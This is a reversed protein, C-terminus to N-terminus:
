ARTIVFTVIGQAFIAVVIGIIAYLIMNRAGAIAQPDGGTFMFRFGAIVLTIVSVGGLIYVITQLVNDFIGGDALLNGGRRGEADEQCAAADLNNGNCLQNTIVNTQADVSQQLGGAYSVVTLSLISVAFLAILYKM